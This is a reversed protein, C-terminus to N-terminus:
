DLRGGNAKFARLGQQLYKYAKVYLSEDGNDDYPDFSFELPFGKDKLFRTCFEEVQPTQYDEAYYNEVQSDFADLLAESTPTAYDCVGLPLYTDIVYPKGTPLYEEQTKQRQICYTNHVQVFTYVHEQIILM